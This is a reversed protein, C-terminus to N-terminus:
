GAVEEYRSLVTLYAALAGPENAQAARGLTWLSSELRLMEVIAERNVRLLERTEDDLTQGPPLKARPQGNSDLLLRINRLDLAVLLAALGDTPSAM